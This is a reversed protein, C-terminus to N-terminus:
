VAVILDGTELKENNNLTISKLENDVVEINTM